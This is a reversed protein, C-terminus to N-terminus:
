CSWTPPPSPWSRWSSRAPWCSPCGSCGCSPWSCRSPPSCRARRGAAQGRDGALASWCAPCRRTRDGRGVPRRPQGGPRAPRDAAALLRARALRPRARREGPGDGRAGDDARPPHVPQRGAAARDRRARGRVLAVVALLSVPRCCRHGPRRAPGRVIARCRRPGSRSRCRTSARRLVTPEVLAAITMHRSSGMGGFATGSDLGLLALAVTGSCCCRSWSSCTTPCAAAARGHQGAPGARLAGPQVGDAALPRRRAAGARHRRGAAAGQGAAQAPRAVAPRGRRRRPGGAPRPDPADRRHAAPTLAVAVVVQLAVLM